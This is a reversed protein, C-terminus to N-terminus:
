RQRAEELAPTEAGVEALLLRMMEEAACRSVQRILARDTHDGFECTISPAGLTQYGWKKSTPKEGATAVQRVTYGPLRRSLAGLWRPAFDAPRTPQEDTQVYFLDRHTSHFDLLLYIRSAKRRSHKLIEDRVARTEPQSFPGWDRNLDVGNANHRWHGAAVGDPNVLPIVVVNFANRFEGALDIQSVITEVFHMLAISGTVEPPHQRGLLFVCGRPDAAGFELRSIPRGGVSRGIVARDVFPLQGMERTWTEIEKCGIMEQGAVWLPQPGVVLRLTASKRSHTYAGSSLPVWRAGDSSIKPRYRHSGGAYTLRVTITRPASSTVRFAYWASDNIPQNEPRIVIQYQSDGQQLCDSLRAGDFRDDFVVRGPAFRGNRPQQVATEGGTLQQAALLSLVVIRIATWAGKIRTTRRPRALSTQRM